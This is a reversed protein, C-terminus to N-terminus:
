THPEESHPSQLAPIWSQRHEVHHLMQSGPETSHPGHKRWAAMAFLLPEVGMSDHGGLSQSSNM